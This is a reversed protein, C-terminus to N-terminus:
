GMKLLEDYSLICIERQQKFSILNNFGRLFSHLLMRKLINSIYDFIILLYTSVNQNNHLTLEPLNGRTIKKCFNISTMAWLGYAKINKNNNMCSLCVCIQVQFDKSM